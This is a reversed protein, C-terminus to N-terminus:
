ALYLQDYFWALPTSDEAFRVVWAPLTPHHSLVTGTSRRVPTTVRAGVAITDM